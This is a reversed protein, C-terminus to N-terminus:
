LTLNLRTIYDNTATNITAKEGKNLKRLSIYKLVNTGSYVHCKKRLIGIVHIAKIIIACHIDSNIKFLSVM